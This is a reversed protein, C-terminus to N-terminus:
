LQIALILYFDLLWGWSSVAETLTTVEEEIGSGIRGTESSPLSSSGSFGSSIM